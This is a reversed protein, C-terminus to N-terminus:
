YLASVETMAFWVTMKRHIAAFELIRTASAPFIAITKLPVCLIAVVEVSGPWAIRVPRAPTPIMVFSAMTKLTKLASDRQRIAAEPL